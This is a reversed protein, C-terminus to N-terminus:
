YACSTISKGSQRSALVVSFRNDKFHNILKDQYGRLNFPVLGEDLSIIQCYSEIFHTPNESCKVYEELEYETYETEIGARKILHNGLYGENRPKVM